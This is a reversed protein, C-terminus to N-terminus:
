KLKKSTTKLPNGRKDFLITTATVAARKIREYERQYARRENVHSAYYHYQYALAEERNARYREARKEDIDYVKPM